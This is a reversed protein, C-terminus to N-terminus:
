SRHHRGSAVRPFFGWAAYAAMYIVTSGTWLLMPLPQWTTMLDLGATSGAFWMGPALFPYQFALFALVSVAAAAQAGWTGSWRKGLAQNVGILVLLALPFTWVFHHYWSFPSVLCASIGVFSMAATRNDHLRATRLALLTLVFIAIVAAVWAPGGEIGWARFMVSYLDKSGTNAHEGVRTSNFMADTWFEKADPVFHFGVVVTLGFTLVTMLAAWWRREWLLTLGMYAPTLKLGAALGTGIGPLRFRRPLVDLAVLLMLLINIQGYFLTGQIAENYPSIMVLLILVVWTLPTLRVGRERFVMVVVALLAAVTAGQWWAILADDSMRALVQFVAGAFPPYTFPLSFIFDKDYLFQGDAVARGGLSYIRLDLPVRWTLFNDNDFHAFRYLAFVTVPLLLGVLTPLGYLKKVSEERENM